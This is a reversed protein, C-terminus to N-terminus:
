TRSSARPWGRGRPRPWSCTGTGIYNHNFRAGRGSGTDPGQARDTFKDFSGDLQVSVRGSRGFTDNRMSSGPARWRSAPDEVTLVNTGTQIRRALFRFSGGPDPLDDRAASILKPKEEMTKEAIERDSRRRVEETEEENVTRRRGRHNQRPKRRSGRGPSPEVIQRSTPRPTGHSTRAVTRHGGSGSPPPTKRPAEPRLPRSSRRRRRDRRAQEGRQRGCRSATSEAAAPRLAAEDAAVTVITEVSPRAEGRCRPGASRGVVSWTPRSAEEEGRGAVTDGGSSGTAAAEPRRM